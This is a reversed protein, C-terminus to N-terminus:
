GCFGISLWDERCQTVTDVSTMDSWISRRSALRPPPHEFADAYVPWNQRAKTIQHMNDNARKVAYLILHLM